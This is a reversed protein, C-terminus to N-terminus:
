SGVEERAARELERSPERPDVLERDQVHAALHERAAKIRRKVTALSCDCADATEPLTLGEVVNLTWAMRREASLQGLARDISALDARVDPPTARAAMREFTADDVSRDLGLSRLLKRKRLRSRVRNMVIRMLWREFLAPDRLRDLHTLAKFFSEQVVDEAEHARGLVRMAADSVRRVHRRYLAEEAWRDGSLAREVLEEDGPAKAARETRRAGLDHVSARASTDPSPVHM